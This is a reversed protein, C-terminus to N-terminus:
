FTSIRVINMLHQWFQHMFQKKSSYKRSCSINQLYRTPTADTNLFRNSHSTSHFGDSLHHGWQSVYRQLTEYHYFFSGLWDHSLVFGLSIMHDYFDPDIRNKHAHFNLWFFRDAQISLPNIANWRSVVFFLPFLRTLHLKWVCFLYMLSKSLIYHYYHIPIVTHELIWNNSKHSFCYQKHNDQKRVRVYNTFYANHTYTYTISYLMSTITSLLYTWMYCCWSIDEIM